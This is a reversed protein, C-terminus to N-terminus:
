AAVEDDPMDFLPYPAKGGYIYKGVRHVEGCASEEYVWVLDVIHGREILNLKRAPPHLIDLHMNAEITSVGGLTQMAVLLRHCRIQTLAAISTVFRKWHREACAPPVIKTWTTGRIGQAISQRPSRYIWFCRKGALGRRTRGPQDTTQVARRKDPFLHHQM